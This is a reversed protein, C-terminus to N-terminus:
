SGNKSLGKEEIIRIMANIMNQLADTINKTIREWDVSNMYKVLRNIKAIQRKQRGIRVSNRSRIYRKGHLTKKM